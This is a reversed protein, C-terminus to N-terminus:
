FNFNIGLIINRGINPIGDTKLRSLHSIYTKDLLNNANLSLDFKNKGININGGFGLNLLVYDGTETEFTSINNQKLFYDINLLAYASKFWKQIDFETRITNSFKNAPILPLYDGNDQKGTVSEFSSVLHLWDLPHPHYHIGIEGGYLAADDQVYDYVDNGDIQTGTPSLFIYDNIHNYFGNAFFEFHANGYELNLDTQLNQENKLNPNGIEYRNSGEHVGNSTLEALNPARFGTAMNARLTLNKFVKTKYGLSANFSEFNKNVAEFYGEEGFTGHNESDIKRNDYRIGAQLTNSRWEYNSTMLIGIDNTTADPILIEEGNNKNTQHMGQVGIITELRDSKPLYLKVNYSATKLKMHLATEDAAELEKRNNYTYGLDAELKTKKLFFKQHLSLMHNDIDQKPYLPTRFHEPIIDEEPLGINLNNYNYRFESNYHINSYGLGIKYDKEIFRTNTVKEGSPIEYDAHTSYSARTLFKWNDSSTKLGLTTNSGQTNSFFKQNFNGSSSNAKAFKESNFYLVGGLADSGYLLSAPGKIVEVSEVGADSMGLGHEDGFQQNEMRIGQSYVLVRNGSLGRIVPKGISTGTSIQAVGPITALGEVLTAAGKQQLQKVSQHEVKMVNQSQVKNFVTSVIMEDMHTSTEELMVNLHTEKENITVVVNKNAYGISSFSINFNGKPLDNFIYRGISDSVTEKHLEPISVTVSEIAKSNHDAISGSLTNQGVAIVSFGLLLTTIFSKM